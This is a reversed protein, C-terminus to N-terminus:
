FATPIQVESEDQEQPESKKRNEFHGPEHRVGIDGGVDHAKLAPLVHKVFREQNAFAVERSMGGFTLIALVAGADIREVYNMLRAVVQDPTGCIQLDALFRNFKDIGHKEINNALAGYYEYGEVNALDRNDFEYHTSTSRSMGMLYKEYMDKAEDETEGIAINVALVPKPAEEGTVERFRRAYGALEEEVIHWPKQPIIMLGVGLKAVLDISQPSVASAFTRGKYTKYPEPRIDVRPQKYLEGDYEIYGNELANLIAPTYETFRRRSESMPIRFAEFEIRGLGRGIGLIARGESLHDLLTFSEAVRIPDHWPLIMVMSGLKIHKTQAAIWSLFQPVQPTVGHDSFHHEPTWVSDFGDDEARAALAMETQYVEADSEEGLRQFLLSLGVHM